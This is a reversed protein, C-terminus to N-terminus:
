LKRKVLIGVVLVGFIRFYLVGGGALLCGVFGGLVSVTLDLAM